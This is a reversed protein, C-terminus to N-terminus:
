DPRSAIFEGKHDIVQLPPQWVKDTDFPRIGTM